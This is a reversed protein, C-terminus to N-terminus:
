AIKKRREETSCPDALTQAVAVAPQFMAVSVMGPQAPYVKTVGDPRLGRAIHPSACWPRLTDGCRSHRYAGSGAGATAGACVYRVVPAHDGHPHLFVLATVAGFIAESLRWQRLVLLDIYLAPDLSTYQGGLTLIDSCGAPLTTQM